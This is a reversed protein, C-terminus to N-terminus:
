AFRTKRWTAYDTVGGEPGLKRVLDDFDDNTAQDLWKRGQTAVDFDDKFEVRLSAAYDSDRLLARAALAGSVVSYRIGFGGVADQIGAAEGVVLPRSSALKMFPNPEFFGKGYIKGVIRAEGILERIWDYQLARDVMALLAGYAITGWACSYISHWVPGPLICLYGRPAVTNDWLSHIEEDSLHSGDRTFRYGAATINVRDRPAGTAVIDAETPGVRSKFRVVAGSELAEALLQRELTGEGGGRAVLYYSPGRTTNRLHPSRRVVRTAISFPKVKIGFRALDDLGDRGLYNRVGETHPGASSGVRTKM